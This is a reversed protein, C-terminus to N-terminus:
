TPKGKLHILILRTAMPSREDLLNSHNRTGTHLNPHSHPDYYSIDSYPQMLVSAAKRM